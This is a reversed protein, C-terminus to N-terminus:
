LGEPLDPEFPMPFAMHGIAEDTLAALGVPGAYDAEGYAPPAVPGYEGLMLFGDPSWSVAGFDPTLSTFGALPGVGAGLNEFVSDILEGPLNIIDMVPPQVDVDKNLNQLESEPAEDPSEFLFDSASLGAKTNGAITLIGGHTPDTFLVDGGSDVSNALFGAFSAVTASVLAIIDTGALYDELLDNGDNYRFTDAGANGKLRDNGLSGELVDDGAGGILRDHGGGGLLTDAGGGGKLLDNGGLGALSNAGSNGTLTDKFAGGTVDEIRIYTDGAAGGSGLGTGLNVNVGSSANNYRAVDTGTGGDLADSGIGGELKDNGSGGFLEDNGASGILTDNGVGGYIDDHGADGTITDNGLQGYLKDNGLGGFITDRAGGGYITDVGGMGNITDEGGIGWIKNASDNGTITDDGQGGKAQEIVVGNAITFGGKIGDFYSVPGGSTSLYDLTAARLDITADTSTGAATITDKTGGTDYITQFFTGTANTTPLSYTTNGAVYPTNAGYRNILAKIDWAGFTGRNGYSLESTSMAFWGDNYAMISNIPDNLGDPGLEFRNSSSMGSLVDSGLGDDHTHGLGLAHGIEHVLTEYGRGGQEGGSTWRSSITHNIRVDSWAQVGNYYTGATGLSGSNDNKIFTLDALSSDSTEVFTVGLFSQIDNLAGRVNLKEAATWDSEGTWDAPTGAFNDGYYTLFGDDGYYFLITGGGGLLPIDGEIAAVPDAAVAYSAEWHMHDHESHDSVDIGIIGLRPEFGALGNGGIAPPLGFSDPDFQFPSFRSSYGGNWNSMWDSQWYMETDFADDSRNFLAM